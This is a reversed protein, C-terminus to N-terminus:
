NVFPMVAISQISTKATFYFYGGIVIAAIILSAVAIPVRSKPKKLEQTTGASPQELLATTPAPASNLPPNNPKPLVSTEIEAASHSDIDSVLATGDTRCFGLEDATEIRNCKPCRKM